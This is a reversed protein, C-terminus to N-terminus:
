LSRTKLLEKAICVYLLVKDCMTPGEELKSVFEEVKEKCLSMATNGEVSEAAPDAGKSLLMAVPAISGSDVAAMLPTDGNDAKQNPDADSELLVKVTEAKLEERQEESHGGKYEAPASECAYMLPTCNTKNALGVTAGAGLLLSCVAANGRLAAETLPTCGTDSKFDLRANYKILTEVIAYGDKPTDSTSDTTSAYICARHLASEGSKKDVANVLSKTSTNLLALVNAASGSAIRSFLEEMATETKVAAKKKAATAQQSKTRAHTRAHMHGHTRAHMHGHTRAHMHGHTRAHMHGHTRAYTHPPPLYREKLMYPHLSAHPKRVQM